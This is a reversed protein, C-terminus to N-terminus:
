ESSPDAIASRRAACDSCFTVPNDDRDLYTRWGRRGDDRRLCEVCYLGSRPPLMYIRRVADRVRELRGSTM